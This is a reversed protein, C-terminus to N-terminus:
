RGVILAFCTLYVPEAMKHQLQSTLRLLRSDHYRRSWDCNLRLQWDHHKVMLYSILVLGTLLMFVHVFVLTLFLTQSMDWRSVHLIQSNYLRCGSLRIVCLWKLGYLLVWYRSILGKRESITEQDRRLEDRLLDWIRDEDGEASGGPTERTVSLKTVLHLIPGFSTWCNDVIIPPVGDCM